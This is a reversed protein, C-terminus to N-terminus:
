AQQDDARAGLPRWGEHDAGRRSARLPEDQGLLLAVREGLLMPVPDGEELRVELSLDPGATSALEVRMTRGRWRLRFGLARWEEPLRPDFRLRDPDPHYGAYGLIAAQWLGGFGAAHVGLAANGFNNALDIEAGQIFYRRAIDYQGLRAAVLAHIAPSLSSGHACRPEYYAFNAERVEPPFRDWLLLILLVVDAQKIVQSGWTRERGILIDIPATRPEYIGIDIDELGFYGQFQEFLGTEPDFGTYMLAALEEWQEPEAPDLDLRETLDRWRDPWRDRLLRATEAGREMNWQAMVNTFANDDVDEHYEDPGIIHRIHVLGDDEIEGRSAWLRATELIIEAGADRLFDDDGTLEWYQWVAYAVDASIHQELEGCLIRVTAGDPAIAYSPTAEHGDAASEWAYLAGRYGFRRAKERAAPLTHYRYMLLARASEPHTMIYFPLMFIETDWFVHGQYAAGTLARAGVSVREDEPNAAGILHYAAFHLARAAFDDGQLDLAAYHWREAWARLHAELAAEAGTACVEDLHREAAADPRETDRTTFISVYRNLRYTTGARVVGTWSERLATPTPEIEVEFTDGAPGALTAATAFAVQDPSGIARLCLTRPPAEAVRTPAPAAGDSAAAGHASGPSAGDATTRPLPELGLTLDGPAYGTERPAEIRSDLHIAGSYNEPTLAVLQVLLHRDALSAFRLGVIRTRRGAQDEHRWVRWLLGQRLDLIRRHVLTDEPTVRLDRGNVRGSLSLWDPGRAFGPVAGAAPPHAFIGAIFTAPASLPSGEALSGRTGLYGNSVTFLSEVEHERALNFGEEVISWSTDRTPQVPAFPAVAAATMPWAQARLAIQEALLERFRPPGGGLHIVGPPVGNPEPGVSLYVAGRAEPVILKADSGPFGAIPGFEDGAIMIGAPEIGRPAAVERLLWLVSDSKDTLGLEIHKVDSTIRADPLGLERATRETLEFVERIGGEIGADRLRAEVVDALEGIESKPPDRWEPLPILDIKRRNLRDYVVGIELGSRDAIEAAVLDAIRTLLADEEATAERGWLLKAHEGDPYGYVESGRNTLVYLNEKHASRVARLCQGELNPFNTGTIAAVLLHADLLRELLRRVPGADERRNGVATGDWDFALIAFPRHLQASRQAAM